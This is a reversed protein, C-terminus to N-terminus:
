QPYLRRRHVAAPDAIAERNGGPWDISGDHVDRPLDADKFQLLALQAGFQAEGADRFAFLSFPLRRWCMGKAWNKFFMDLSCAYRDGDLRRADWIRLNWELLHMAIDQRWLLRKEIERRYLTTIIEKFAFAFGDYGPSGAVPPVDVPARGALPGPLETRRDWTYGHEVPEAPAIRLDEENGAVILYRVRLVYRVQDALSPAGESVVSLAGAEYELTRRPDQLDELMKHRLEKISTKWRDDELARMERTRRDCEPTSCDVRFAGYTGFSLVTGSNNLEPDSVGLLLTMLKKADGEAILDFGNLVVAYIDKGALAPELEVRNLLRFSALQEETTVIKVECVGAQFEVGRAQVTTYPDVFEARDPGTGSAATHVAEIQYSGEPSVAREIYSGMRNARHNYQWRHSFGQWLVAPISVSTPTSM